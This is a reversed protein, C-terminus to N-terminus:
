IKPTAEAETPSASKPSLPAALHEDTGRGVSPAKRLLRDIEAAILAGAKELNRIQNHSPKWWPAGWPWNEDDAGFAVEAAEEFTLGVALGRSLVAYCAAAMAMSGDRHLDDHDSTWGKVSLQRQREAAILAIGDKQRVHGGHDTPADTIGSANEREAKEAPRSERPNTNM